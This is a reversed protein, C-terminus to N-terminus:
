LFHAFVVIFVATADALAIYIYGYCGDYSYSYRQCYCLKLNGSDPLVKALAVAAPFKKAMASSLVM